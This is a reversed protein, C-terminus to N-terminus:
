SGSVIGADAPLGVVNERERSTGRSVEVSGFDSGSHNEVTPELPRIRGWSTTTRANTQPIPTAWSPSSTRSSACSHRSRPRPASAPTPKRGLERELVRRDREVEAIWTAAVTIDADQELLERYRALKTDCEGHQGQAVAYETPFKCRYYAQGHNWSGQM